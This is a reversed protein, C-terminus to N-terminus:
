ARDWGRGDRSTEVRLGLPVDPALPGLAATIQALSYVQGLDLELWAQDTKPVRWTTWVRRDFARSAVENHASARVSWGVTSIPRIPPDPPKWHHFIVYDGVEDRRFGAGILRLTGAMVGPSPSRLVRHAVFAVAAPDE